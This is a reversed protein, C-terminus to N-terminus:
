RPGRVAVKKKDFARIQGYIATINKIMSRIKATCFGYKKSLMNFLLRFFFFVYSWKKPPLVTQGVFFTWKPRWTPTYLFVSVVPANWVFGQFMLVVRVVSRTTQSREFAGNALELSRLCAVRHSTAWLHQSQFLSGIFNPTKHDKRFARLLAANMTSWKKQINKLLQNPRHVHNPKSIKLTEGFVVQRLSTLM